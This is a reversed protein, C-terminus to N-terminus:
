LLLGMGIRACIVKGGTDKRYGEPICTKKCSKESDWKFPSKAGKRYGEPIRGTDKRYAPAKICKPLFDKSGGGNVTHGPSSPAPIPPASRWLAYHSTCGLNTPRVEPLFESTSLVTHSSVPCKGQTASSMVLPNRTSESPCKGLSKAGEPIRGTDKRYGEPIRTFCVISLKGLVPKTM